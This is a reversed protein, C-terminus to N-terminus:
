EAAALIAVPLVHFVAAASMAQGDTELTAGTLVNRWRNPAGEPLVVTTDAWFPEGVQLASVCHKALFRPVLTVSWNSGAHRAFGFLSRSRSGQGQLPIYTGSRFLEAADRRFRLGRQTVAAKIRGDRWNDLLEAISADEPVVTPPPVPRRNDPDVLSFDWHMTGRYVDPLGPATIKIAVQALSSPIAAFAVREAFPRFSELFTRSNFLHDVFATLAEEHEEVPEIWSTHERAERAAKIAYQKMRECFTEIENDFLPWAGLLNQYLFYEENEDVRGRAAANAARWQKVLDTWEHGLESLVNIRARVDESRKTDHTSSANMAAPWRESRRKCFEHFESPRVARPVSGVENLSVLRNYVYMTSDEVGKAMIPGTLQQWRKVFRLWRAKVEEPTSRFFRLTLVRRVFDYVLANLAPCRHRAEHCAKDIQARGEPSVEYSVIYTRYVGMCATVQRVALAIERPSLDRAYRDLEAVEALSTGLDAMEGSFLKDIIRLKREYEIDEFEAKVGIVQKYFSTLHGLGAPHVFLSNLYGLFDYGSTGHVPWDSRLEETGVLIKEVVVYYRDSPLKELYSRPEALGDIHDIRLGNVKGSEILDFIFRHTAEFTAPNEARVGILDTVDFFRRYNIRETAVRWYALRYAQDQLIAHMADFSDRDGPLGNLEKLRADVHERVAPNSSYLEWTRRKINDKERYRVELADWDTVWRPPFRELVEILFKFDTITQGLHDSGPKLIDLYTIPAVPLKNQWYNVFFGSEEYSFQLEGNELVIGYPAGLVPLFVKENVADRAAGWNIGFYGAYPSAAGNELVDMWWRNEGHAAMHNPVIDLVVGMGHRHLVEVLGDFDEATGLEPNLRTPDVVDYGHTSGPRAALIPSAYLHSIGSAALQPVLAKADAFRFDKNFQVRYTASPIEIM